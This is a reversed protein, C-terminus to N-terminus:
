ESYNNISQETKLSKVNNKTESSKVLTSNKLYSSEM